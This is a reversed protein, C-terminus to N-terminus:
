NENLKAHLPNNKQLSVFKVKPYLERIYDWFFDYEAQHIERANAANCLSPLNTKGPEFAHQGILIANEPGDCGVFYIESAGIAAALNIMRVCCGIAGYIKSHFCSRNKKIYFDNNIFRHYSQWKPHIEFLCLPEYKYIYEEFEGDLLNTEAGLVILSMRVQKLLHHKYFKNLSWISDYEALDTLTLNNTSPGGGIVLLKAGNYTSFFPHAQYVIDKKVILKDSFSPYLERLMKPAWSTFDNDNHPKAGFNFPDLNYLM